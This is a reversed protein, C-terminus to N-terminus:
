NEQLLLSSLTKAKFFNKDIEGLTESDLPEELFEGLSSFFTDGLPIFLLLLTVSLALLLIPLFLLCDERLVDGCDVPDFEADPEGVVFFELGGAAGDEVVLDDLFDVLELFDDDPFLVGEGGCDNKADDAKWFLGSGYEIGM